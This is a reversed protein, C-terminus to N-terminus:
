LGFAFSVSISAILMLQSKTEFDESSTQEFLSIVFRLSDINIFQSQLVTLSVCLGQVGRKRLVGDKVSTSYWCLLDLPAFNLIM